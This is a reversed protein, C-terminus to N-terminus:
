RDWCGQHKSVPFM